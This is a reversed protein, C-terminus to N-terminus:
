SCSIAVDCIGMIFLLHLGKLKCKSDKPLLYAGPRSFAFAPHSFAFAPHSFAFAPAKSCFLEARPFSRSVVPFRAEV